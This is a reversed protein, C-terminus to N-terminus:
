KRKACVRVGGINSGHFLKNIVRYFHNLDDYTEENHVRITRERNKQWLDWRSAVFARWEDTMDTFCIDEFGADELEKIYKSKSPLDQGICFVDTKLISLEEDTFSDGKMYFDELYLIAGKKAISASKSWMKKRDRTCMHLVCLWSVIGDVQNLNQIEKSEVKDFDELFNISYLQCNEKPLGCARSLNNAVEVQDPQIDFGIVRIGPSMWAITRAPQGLGAGVDVIVKGEGNNEIGLEKVAIEVSAKQGYNLYLGPLNLLVEKEISQNTLDTIGIEALENYVREVHNYLKMTKIDSSPLCSM